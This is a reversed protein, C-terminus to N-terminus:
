ILSIVVSSSMFSLSLILCLTKLSYSFHPCLLLKPFMGTCASPDPLAQDHGAGRSWQAPQKLCPLASIEQSISNRPNCIVMPGFLGNLFISFFDGVVYPQPFLLFLNLTVAMPLYYWCLSALIPDSIVMAVRATYVKSRANDRQM